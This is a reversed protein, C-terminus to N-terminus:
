APPQESFEADHRAAREAAAVDAPKGMLLAMEEATAGARALEAEAEDSFETKKLRVYARTAKVVDANATVTGLGKSRHEENLRQHREVQQRLWMFWRLRGNRRVDDMDEGHRFRMLGRPELHELLIEGAEDPVEQVEGPRFVYLRSPAIREEGLSHAPHRTGARHSLLDDTTNMLLM